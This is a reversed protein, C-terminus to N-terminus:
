KARMYFPIYNAKNKDDQLFAFVAETRDGYLPAGNAFQYLVTGPWSINWEFCIPNEDEDVTFDWGVIDFNDLLPHNKRIIDLIRDWAPAKLGRPIERVFRGYQDVMHDAFEGEPSIGVLRVQEEGDVYSIDTFSSGAGVRAAAYLVDVSNGHRWTCIRMINSSTENLSAMVPHQRVCQQVVYDRCDQWGLLIQEMDEPSEARYKSVSKGFGTDRTKKLVIDGPGGLAEWAAQSFARLDEPLYGLDDRYYRGRIRRGLAKPLPVGPLLRHFMNKERWSNEYARDNYYEYLVLGAVLDPVFRPDHRGTAHYYMRHYSYDYIKIGFQAWYRSIEQKEEATLEPPSFRECYEAPIAEHSRMIARRMIDFDRKDEWCNIYKKIWRGRILEM